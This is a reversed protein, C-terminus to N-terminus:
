PSPRPSPPKGELFRAIEELVGELNDFVENNWFRLVTFGQSILKKDRIADKSTELAHQGGDLEVIVRKEFCMFDVIYEGLPQQRRFKVGDLQKNRLQRWLLKEAETSDRRLRKAAETLRSKM